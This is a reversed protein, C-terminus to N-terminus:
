GEKEMMQATWAQELRGVQPNMVETAAVVARDEVLRALRARAEVLLAVGPLDQEAGQPGRVGAQFAEM